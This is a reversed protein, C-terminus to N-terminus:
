VVLAIAKETTYRYSILCLYPYFRDCESIQKRYARDCYLHSESKHHQM